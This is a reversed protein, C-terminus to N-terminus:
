ARQVNTAIMGKPSEAIKFHVADEERLEDFSVGVLEMSHFFYEWKDNVVFGFGKDSLKKITGVRLGIDVKTLAPKEVSEYEFVRLLEKVGKEYDPFLDGIQLKDIDGFTPKCDDIRLPIIYIKDPSYEQAIKLADRIEKQVYGKKGVSRSSLLAIFYRSERIAKSIVMDWNQGPILDVSDLWPKVGVQQLDRHLKEAFANDEKAYSIFVQTTM